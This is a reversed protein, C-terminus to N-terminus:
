GWLRVGCVRVGAGRVGCGALHVVCWAGRVGGM